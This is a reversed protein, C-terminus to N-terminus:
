SKLWTVGGDSSKYRTVPGRFGCKMELKAKKYDTVKVDYCSSSPITVETWKKANNLLYYIESSSFVGPYPGMLIGKNNEYIHSLRKGTIGDPIPLSKFRTKAGHPKFIVAGKGKEAVVYLGKTKNYYNIITLDNKDSGSLKFSDNQRFSDGNNYSEYLSFAGDVLLVYRKGLVFITPAKIGNPLPKFKIDKSYDSTLLKNGNVNPIVCAFQFKNDRCDDVKDFTGTNLVKIQSVQKKSNRKIQAVIGMSGSVVNKNSFRKSNALQLAVTKRLKKIEASSLYKAKALKINNGKIMNILAPQETRLYSAIQKNNNISFARYRMKETNPFHAYILGLNTVQGTKITFSRKIPFQSYARHGYTVSSGMGRAVGIKELNYNGPKLPLVIYNKSILNKYKEGSIYADGSYLAQRFASNNNGEIRVVLLGKDDLDSPKLVVKTAGVCGSLIIILSILLGFKRIM